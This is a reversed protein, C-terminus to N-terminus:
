KSAKASTPKSGVKSSKSGASSSPSKSRTGSTKSTTGNGAGTQQNENQLTSEWTKIGEIGNIVKEVDITKKLRGAAIEANVWKLIEYKLKYAGNRQALKQMESLQDYIPTDSM